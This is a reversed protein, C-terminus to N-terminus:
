APDTHAGAAGEPVLGAVANAVWRAVAPTLMVAIFDDLYEVGSAPYILRGLAVWPLREPVYRRNIADLALQALLPNNFVGLYPDTKTPQEGFQAYLTFGLSSGARACRMADITLQPEAM